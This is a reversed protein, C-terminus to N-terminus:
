CVRSQMAVLSIWRILYPIANTGFHRFAEEIESERTQAKEPNCKGAQPADNATIFWRFREGRAPRLQEAPLTAPLHLFLGSARHCRRFGIMFGTEHRPLHKRGRM